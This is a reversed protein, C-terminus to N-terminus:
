PNAPATEAYKDGLILKALHKGLMDWVGGALLSMVLGQLLSAGIPAGGFVALGGMGLAGLIASVYPLVDASINWKPLAFQRIVVVLIMVLIGGAVEWKGALLNSLLAPLWGTAQDVTEPPVTAQAFVLLSCFLVSFLALPAYVYAIVKKM